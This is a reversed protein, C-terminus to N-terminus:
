NAWTRFCMSFTVLSQVCDLRKAASSHQIAPALSSFKDRCSSFLESGGYWSCPWAFAASSAKGFDADGQRMVVDLTADTRYMLCINTGQSPTPPRSPSPCAAANENENQNRSPRDKLFSWEEGYRAGSAGAPSLISACVLRVPSLLLAAACRIGPPGSGPESSHNEGGALKGARM